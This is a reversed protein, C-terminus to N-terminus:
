LLPECAPLARRFAAELGEVARRGHEAREFLGGYTNLTFSPYVHGLQRSVFIVNLGQAIPLAAYTHRLDHFRLRPALAVDLGAAAVAEALGRRAVNRYHM